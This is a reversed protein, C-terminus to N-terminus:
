AFIVHMTYQFVTLICTAKFQAAQSLETEQCLGETM